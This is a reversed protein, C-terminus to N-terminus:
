QVSTIVYTKGAVTALDWVQSARLQPQRLQVGEAVRPAKIGPVAFFPNPNDGSAAVLGKATIANHVRVRANGGLRSYLSARTLQGNEWAIDVVFGGRTVLGKVEGKPWADPLAPLLHIVGDHSQVLMEAIGATVGFNGDIQFPPHADLMNAYTGGKESVAQTEETLNIQEQLLQYARNGDHFRAWWNIKWGMSWGTSKDGRQMLSVRAAEFLAPTRYPSIQNGPYLGYLHSVHRHHDDPHDWDELWEQLQGFHGIRMPALRERKQRLQAALDSDVGLIHAADITISFLDFVLQNDMTTGASISTPYGAREYTNEPSNSPVVVLAGSNPELTLSDVFFRSAERLVPYYRQLFDRDGSHLYHYWIHQCLWAGGTQWQGYFAKDVQGTIRWLDTNHHMMWGRAGYLQQASARGTLALDELMAFLPQHLEPLQTVEAPWYNMETNINVTYKSDWPPSTHPNWIGQLNAPQTGPQSSSILLYRGYQFYLMALHPDQSHAFEAIRQDTPRAMAASTGLDLSVRNFQAQYAAVHAQQLQAFGKGEAASLYAQARALSDGGLDNYRVFNTAAAIRILVEDAGEIRLAKDDRRLTGGRLEPAILATFRIKGDLGEHSGGRGDVQLWREHVSLQHQMPSDFGIRTNIQGPKSASLRVVIVQDSLSSFLERTFTVGAKVYSVRAIANALDLDRYYDDVQGHGAFDLRLNGLTQYPMGNNLSRIQQDALTQAQQHQGQLLLRTVQEITQAAAPNVNNNPGGAWITDENLQLQEQAPQGFVMAGLRGNGIPLAQNWDSAPTNYWLRLDQKTASSHSSRGHQCAILGLGFLMLSLLALLRIWRKLPRRKLSLTMIPIRAQAGGQALPAFQFQSLSSPFCAAGSLVSLPM